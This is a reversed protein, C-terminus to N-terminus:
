SELLDQKRDKTTWLQFYTEAILQYHRANETTHKDTSDVTPLLQKLVAFVQLHKGQRKYIEALQEQMQTMDYEINYKDKREQAYSMLRLLDSEATHNQDKMFAHDVRQQYKIIFGDLVRKSTSHIHKVQQSPSQPASARRLRAMAMSEHQEPMGFDEIEQDESGLGSDADDDLTPAHDILSEVSPEYRSILEWAIALAGQM